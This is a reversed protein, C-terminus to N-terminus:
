LPFSDAHIVHEQANSFASAVVEGHVILPLDGAVATYIGGANTAPTDDPLFIPVKNTTFLFENPGAARDIGCFVPRWPTVTIGAYASAACFFVVVCCASFMM